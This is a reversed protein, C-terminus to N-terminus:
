GRENTRLLKEEREGREEREEREGEEWVSRVVLLQQQQSQRPNM